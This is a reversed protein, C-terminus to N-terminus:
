LLDIWASLLTGIGMGLAHAFTLPQDLWRKITDTTTMGGTYGCRLYHACTRSGIITLSTIRM